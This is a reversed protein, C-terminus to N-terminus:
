CGEPVERVKIVTLKIEGRTKDKVVEANPDSIALMWFEENIKFTYRLYVFYRPNVIMVKKYALYLYSTDARGLDKLIKFEDIYTDVQKQLELNSVM